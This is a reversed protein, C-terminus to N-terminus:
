FGMGIHASQRYMHSHFIQHWYFIGRLEARLAYLFAMRLMRPSM